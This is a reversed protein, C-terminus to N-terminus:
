YRPDQKIEDMGHYTLFGKLRQPTKDVIDLFREYNNKEWNKDKLIWNGSENIAGRDNRVTIKSIEDLTFRVRRRNNERLVKNISESIIRNIRNM